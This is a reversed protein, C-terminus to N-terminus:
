IAGSNFGSTFQIVPGRVQTRWDSGGIQHVLSTIVFVAVGGGFTGSIKTSSFEVQMHLELRPDLPLALDYDLTYSQNEVEDADEPDYEFDTDSAIPIPSANYVTATDGDIQLTKIGEDATLANLLQYTFTADPTPALFHQEGSDHTLMELLKDVMVPVTDTSTLDSKLKLTKAAPSVVILRAGVPELLRRFASEYTEAMSEDGLPTAGKLIVPVVSRNYRSPSSSAIVKTHVEAGQLYSYAYILFGTFIPRESFDGQSSYGAIVQVIGNPEMQDVANSGLNPIDAEFTATGGTESVSFEVTGSFAFTGPVGGFEILLANQGEGIGGADIAVQRRQILIKAVPTSFAGTSITVDETVM